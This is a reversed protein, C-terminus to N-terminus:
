PDLGFQERLNHAINCRINTYYQLIVDYIDTDSLGKKRLSDELDKFFIGAVSIIDQEEAMLYKSNRVDRLEPGYM